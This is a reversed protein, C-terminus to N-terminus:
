EVLFNGRHEADRKARDLAMAGTHHLFYAHNGHGLQHPHRLLRTYRGRRM